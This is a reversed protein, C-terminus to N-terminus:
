IDAKKVKFFTLFGKRFQYNKVERGNEAATFTDDACIFRFVLQM